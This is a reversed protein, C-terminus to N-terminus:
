KTPKPPEKFNSFEALAQPSQVGERRKDGLVWTPFSRVNAKQCLDPRANVGKPDCEVYPLDKAADGFLAKQETCHPCWYAGYMVAGQERLHRALAAEYGADGGEPMAFIFAAGFPALLAMVVAGAIVSSLKRRRGPVGARRLWLVVLLALFLATSALCYACTAGIVWLSVATLYVSVGVGAATLYFAWAWRSASLGLAALAGIALYLLAGWLATPVGLLTGYRSAQVIDCGGGSLCFLANSGTWKLWTLYLAVALGAAALALVAYDPRAPAAVVAERRRTAM